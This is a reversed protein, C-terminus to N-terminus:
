TPILCIDSYKLRKEGGMYGHNYCYYSVTGFDGTVEITIEGTYFQITFDYPGINILAESDENGLEDGPAMIWKDERIVKPDGYPTGSTIKLNQEVTEYNYDKNPYEENDYIIGFPHDDLITIKYTGTTLGVFKFHEYPIKNFIIYKIENNDQIQIKNEKKLCQTKYYIEKRYQDEESRIKKRNSIYIKSMLNDFDIKLRTRIFSQINLLSEYSENLKDEFDKDTVEINFYLRKHENVMKMIKNEIDEFNSM